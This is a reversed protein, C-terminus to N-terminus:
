ARNVIVVVVAVRVQYWLHQIFFRCMLIISLRERFSVAAAGGSCMGEAIGGADRVARVALQQREYIKEVQLRVEGHYVVLDLM